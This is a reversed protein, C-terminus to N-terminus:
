SKPSTLRPVVHTKGAELVSEFTDGAGAASPRLEREPAVPSSPDYIRQQEQM